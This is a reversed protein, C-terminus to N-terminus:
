TVRRSTINVQAVADDDGRTTWPPVRCLVSSLLGTVVRESPLAYNILQPCKKILIDRSLFPLLLRIINTRVVHWCNIMLRLLISRDKSRRRSAILLFPSLACNNTVGSATFTLQNYYHLSWHWDASISSLYVDQHSAWRAVRYIFVCYNMFSSCLLRPFISQNSSPPPSVTLARRRDGPRLLVNKRIAYWILMIGM